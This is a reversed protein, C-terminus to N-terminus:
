SHGFQYSQLVAHHLSSMETDISNQTLVESRFMIKPANFIKNDAM